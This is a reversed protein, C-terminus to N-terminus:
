EVKEAGLERVLAAIIPHAEGNGNAGQRPPSAAEIVPPPQVAHSSSAVMSEQFPLVTAGRNNKPLAHLIPEIRVKQGTLGQFSEVLFDKNRKLSSLHFDDPCAIRLAGDAVDLISSESLLTWLGIKTKRVEGLWARWHEYAQEVTISAMTEVGPLPESSVPVAAPAQEKMTISALAAVGFPGPAPRTAMERYSSYTMAAPSTIRGASVQGVVKVEKVPKGGPPGANRSSERPIDGPTPIGNNGLKKKLEDIQRLLADIEVTKKMKIMHLLGAELKFRPQAAWRIAQELDNVLKLLRLIDNQHFQKAEERYRKRYPESTEILDAADTILVILMNRLHESLGGLFERLDYGNKMLRDVLEIGGRANGERILDTVGFYVEQDVANLVKLVDESKIENGCFSRIQDFISQADRMSGDGKKAIIMLAGDDVTVGEEGAIFRLRNIIEEIAIRRFDFRQCRSLITMPIKHVETTAFIFIVHEPPEELTKLLANFAEKTLMHVEDIIYVKYKGRAPTYRVSERLNRIEEVGRNSAGDIEIVDLSRGATIERCVECENDPNIDKPSLCNIAKALIRATTTKGCGRAGSFIYAHALRNTSIANRLTETVHSQGVVDEFVMPRWKRATVQYSM